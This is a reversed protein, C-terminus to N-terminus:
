RSRAPFFIGGPSHFVGAQAAAAEAGDTAPARTLSAMVVPRLAPLGLSAGYRELTCARRPATARIGRQRCQHDFESIKASAVGIATCPEFSAELPRGFYELWDPRLPLLGLVLSGGAARIRVIEAEAEARSQPDAGRVFADQDDQVGVDTVAFPSGGSFAAVIGSLLPEDPHVSCSVLLALLLSM